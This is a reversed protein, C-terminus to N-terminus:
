KQRHQRAVDDDITFWPSILLYLEGIFLGAYLGINTLDGITVVGSNFINKIGTVAFIVTVAIAALYLGYEIYSVLRVRREPLRNMVKRTFWPSPPATLRNRQLMDRLERDNLRDHRNEQM